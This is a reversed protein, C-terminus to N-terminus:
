VLRFTQGKQLHGNQLYQKTTMNDMITADKVRHDGPRQEETALFLMGSTSNSHGWDSPQLLLYNSAKKLKRGITGSIVVEYTSDGVPQAYMTSMQTGAAFHDDGDVETMMTVPYANVMMVGDSITPQAANVVLGMMSHERQNCRQPVWSGRNGSDQGTNNTLLLNAGLAGTNVMRELLQLTGIKYDVAPLEDSAMSFLGYYEDLEITAERGRIKDVLVALPRLYANADLITGHGACRVISKFLQVKTGNTKSQALETPLTIGPLILTCEANSYYDKMKPVEREKDENSEQDICWRDVWFYRKKLVGHVTAIVRELDESSYSVWPYSLAVYSDVPNDNPITVIKDKLNPKNSRHADYFRQPIIKTEPVVLGKSIEALGGPFLCGCSAQHFKDRPAVAYYPVTRSVIRQLHELTLRQGHGCLQDLPLFPLVPAAVESDTDNTRAAMSILLEKQINSRAEELAEEMEQHIALFEVRELALAILSFVKALTLFSSQHWTPPIQVRTRMANEELVVQMVHGNSRKKILLGLSLMFTIGVGNDDLCVCPDVSTLDARKRNKSDVTRDEWTPLDDDELDIDDDDDDTEQEILSIRLRCGRPKSQWSPDTRITDVVEDDTMVGCLRPWSMLGRYDIHPGVSEPGSRPHSRNCYSRYEESYRSISARMSREFEKDFSSEESM